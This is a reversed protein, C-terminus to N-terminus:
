LNIFAGSFFHCEPVKKLDSFLQLICILNVTDRWLREYQKLYYYTLLSLGKCDRATMLVM